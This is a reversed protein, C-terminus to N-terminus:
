VIDVLKAVKTRLNLSDCVHCLFRAPLSLANTTIEALEEDVVGLEQTRPTVGMDEAAPELIM